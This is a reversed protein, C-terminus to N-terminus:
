ISKKGTIDLTTSDSSTAELMYSNGTVVVNCTYVGDDRDDALPIISLNGSYTSGSRTTDTVTYWEGPISRPGTWTILVNPLTDVRSDLSVTCTFTLSSGAYLVDSRDRSIVVM